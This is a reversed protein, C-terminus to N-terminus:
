IKIGLKRLDEAELEKEKKSEYEKLWNLYPPPTLTGRIPFFGFQRLDTILTSILIDLKPNDFHDHLGAITKLQVDMTDPRAVLRVGGVTSDVLYYAEGNETATETTNMEHTTIATWEGNRKKWLQEDVLRLISLLDLIIGNLMHNLEKDNEIRKAMQINITIEMEKDVYTRTPEFWSTPFTETENNKNQIVEM